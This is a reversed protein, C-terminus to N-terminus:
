TRESVRSSLTDELEKRAGQGVPRQRHKERRALGKHVFLAFFTSTLVPIFLQLSEAKWGQELEVSVRRRRQVPLSPFEGSLEPTDLM